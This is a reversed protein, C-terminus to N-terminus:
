IYIFSICSPNQAVTNSQTGLIWVKLILINNNDKNAFRSSRFMHSDQEQDSRHFSYQFCPIQSSRRHIRLWPSAPSRITLLPSTWSVDESAVLIALAVHVTAAVTWSLRHFSGGGDIGGGCGHSGCCCGGCSGCCCCCRRKSKTTTTTLFHYTLSSREEKRARGVRRWRFKKVKTLPLLFFQKKKWRKPRDTKATSSTPWLM